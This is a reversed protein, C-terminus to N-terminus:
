SIYRLLIVVLFLISHRFTTVGGGTCLHVCIAVQFPCRALCGPFGWMRLDLMETSAACLWFRFRLNLLCSIHWFSFTHRFLYRNSCSPNEGTQFHMVLSCTTKLTSRDLRCFRNAAPLFKSQCRKTAVLFWSNRLLALLTSILASKTSLTLLCRFGLSALVEQRELPDMIGDEVDKAAGDSECSSSLGFIWFDWVVFTSSPNEWSNRM